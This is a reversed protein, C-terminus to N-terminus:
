IKKGDHKYPRSANFAQKALMAEAVRFGHRQADNMIRIIVDAYEEEIGSFEPIHDSQPNEHRYFELAESLESHMLALKEGFNYDADNEFGHDRSIKFNLAQQDRFEAVFLESM